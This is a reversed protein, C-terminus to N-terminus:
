RTSAQACAAVASTQELRALWCEVAQKKEAGPVKLYNRLENKAENVVGQRLMIQALLLRADPFQVETQRLLESAESPNRKETALVCGLMYQAISNRPDLDLARRAAAEADRYRQLLFLAVSLNGFPQVIRPDIDIAKQFEAAAKEYEHLEFYRSGLNNHAELYHPYIQLAKELHEASSRIDGSHLATQSRQLEKMAKPPILLERTSITDGPKPLRSPDVALQPVVPRPPPEIQACLTSTLVLLLPWVNARMPDELPSAIAL